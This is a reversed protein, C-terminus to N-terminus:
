RCSLLKIDFESIINIISKSMKYDLFNFLSAMQTRMYLQYLLTSYKSFFRQRIAGDIVPFDEIGIPESTM